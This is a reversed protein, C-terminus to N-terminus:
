RPAKPAAPLGAQFGAGGGTGYRSSPSTTTGEEINDVNFDLLSSVVVPGGADAMEDVLARIREAHLEVAGDALAIAPDLAKAAGHLEIARPVGADESISM